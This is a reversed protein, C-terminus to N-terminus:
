TGCPHEAVMLNCGIGVSIMRMAKLLAIIAVLANGKNEIYLSHFRLLEDGGNESEKIATSKWRSLFEASLFAVLKEDEPKISMEHELMERWLKAVDEAKMVM